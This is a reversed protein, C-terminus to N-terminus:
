NVHNKVNIGGLSSYGLIVLADTVFGDAAKAVIFNVYFDTNEGYEDALISFSGDKCTSPVYTKKVNATVGKYLRNDPETESFDYVYINADSEIGVYQTLSEDVCYGLENKEIIGIEVEGINREMVPGFIMGPINYYEESSANLWEEPPYVNDTFMPEGFGTQEARVANSLFTGYDSDIGNFLVRVDNVYGDAGATMAIVDGAKLAPVNVSRVEASGRTGSVYEEYTCYFEDGVRFSKGAESDPGYVVITDVLTDSIEDYETGSKSYIYFGTNDYFESKESASVPEFYAIEDFANLYVIYNAGISLLAEYSGSVTYKVDNIIYYREGSGTM